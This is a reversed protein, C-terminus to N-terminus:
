AERLAIRTYWRTHRTVSIPVTHVLASLARDTDDLPFLGSVRVAAAAESVQLIGARYQGLAAIVEGLPMDHAELWGDRWAAAAQLAPNPADIWDAGYRAGQGAVLSLRERSRTVIEVSSQLAVALTHAMQLRVMSGAGTSSVHGHPTVIVFPAGLGARPQVAVAGELLRVIRAGEAFDLDVRSRADLMLASGDPLTYRRREGTATGLDAVLNALPTIRNAMWGGGAAVGLLGAASLLVRRRSPRELTRRLRGRDGKLVEDLQGASQAVGQALRAWAQEHSPDAARWAACARLDADSAEGSTLRLWFEIAADGPSGPTGSAPDLATM